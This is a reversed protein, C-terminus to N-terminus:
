IEGLIEDIVTEYDFWKDCQWYNNDINWYYSFHFTSSDRLQEESEGQHASILIKCNEIQQQKIIEDAIIDVVFGVTMFIFASLIMGCGFAVSKSQFRDEFNM